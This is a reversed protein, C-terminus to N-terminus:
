QDKNTGPCEMNVPSPMYYHRCDKGEFNRRTPSAVAHHFLGLNPATVAEPDALPCHVNESDSRVTLRIPDDQVRAFPVARAQTSCSDLPNQPLFKLMVPFPLKLVPDKLGESLVKGIRLPGM